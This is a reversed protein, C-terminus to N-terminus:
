LKALLSQRLLCDMKIRGRFKLALLHAFKQEGLNKELSFFRPSDHFRSYGVHDGTITAMWEM